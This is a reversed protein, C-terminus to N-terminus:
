SPIHASGAWPVARFHSPVNQLFRHDTGHCHLDRLVARLTASHFASTLDCRGGPGLGADVM